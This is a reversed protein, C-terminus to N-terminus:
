TLTIETGAGNYGSDGLSAKMISCRAYAATAPIDGEASLLRSIFSNDAAYFASRLISADSLSVAIKSNDGVEFKESSYSGTNSGPIQSRSINGSSDVYGSEWSLSTGDIVTKASASVTVTFTTTKGGYSVTITSTGETLTGSLTYGTVTKSEGGQYFATVVLDSKLSDLSDTDYVTGSQTYVATIHDLPYLAAELADYYQQGDETAWAVNAFCDLLADKFSDDLDAATLTVAGSGGTLKSRILAHLLNM